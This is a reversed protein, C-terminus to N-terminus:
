ELQETSAREGMTLAFKQTKFVGTTGLRNATPLFWIM